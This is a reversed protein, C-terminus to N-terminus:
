SLLSLAKDIELAVKQMSGRVPQNSPPPDDTDDIVEEDVGSQEAAYETAKKEVKSAVYTFSLQFLCALILLGVFFKILGKGQM